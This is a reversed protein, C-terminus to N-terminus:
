KGKKAPKYELINFTPPHQSGANVALVGGMKLAAIKAKNLVEVKFGSAKGMKVTDKSLQVASLYSLPENVLDRAFFIADVLYQLESIM